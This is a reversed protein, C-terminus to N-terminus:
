KPDILVADGCPAFGDDGFDPPRVIIAKTSGVIRQGISIFLGVIDRGGIPEGISLDFDTVGHEVIRTVCSTAPNIRL